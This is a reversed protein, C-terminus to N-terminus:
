QITLKRSFIGQQTIIKVAYSGSPLHQLDIYTEESTLVVKGSADFINVEEFMLNDEIEIKCYDDTPNPFLRIVASNDLENLSVFLPTLDYVRVHGSSAGNGNNSPSGISITSADSSIHLSRGSFDDATEGDISSGIQVWTGGQNRFIYTRGANTASSSHNRASVVLTNGGASLSVAYGFLDGVVEGLLDSGIQVWNGGTNQFVQVKGEPSEGPGGIAVISGDSSLSVSNGFGQFAGVINSGIQSWSGGINQVIKVYGIEQSSPNGIAGIAVISGDSSTSISYGLLDLAEDGNIDNGIQVWSGGQNEYVRAQGIFSNAGFAGVALVSGDSSLGLARGTQSNFMDGNIESGIQTWTGGINEYVRVQGSALAVDNDIPEGIAIISGDASLSVSQGAQDGPDGDIDNGIQIWNGNTNKFVRVHGSGSGAAGGGANFNAGVAVVSGDSSLTTSFGANDGAMEGDIDNGIQVQGYSTLGLTVACVVAIIIKKEM